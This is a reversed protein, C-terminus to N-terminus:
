VAYEELERETERHLGPHERWLYLGMAAAAIINAALVSWWMLTDLLWIAAISLLGIFLAEFSVFLLVIGLLIPPQREAARFLAAALLGLVAFLTCHLVTYAIVTGSDIRVDAPSSAGYLFVSGLAAPTFFIRGQLADVALYWAAVAVAGIVGAILGHRVTRHQRLAERLSAEPGVKAVRLYLVLSMGALLSGALVEPWGLARVIQIGTVATGVYFMLDFLLIGIVLGVLLLPPTGTRDFLWGATAGVILFVAYHLATYAAILGIGFDVRELGFLVSALFAPTHLPAGQVADIVLFWLALVTAAVAGAIVGHAVSRRSRSM